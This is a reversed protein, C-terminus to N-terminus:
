GCSKYAIGKYQRAFQRMHPLCVRAEEMGQTRFCTDVTLINQTFDTNALLHPLLSDYQLRDEADQGPETWEGKKAFIPVHASTKNDHLSGDSGIVHLHLINVGNMVLYTIFGEQSRFTERADETLQGYYSFQKHGEIAVTEGHCTDYLVGSTKAKNAEPSAYKRVANSIAVIQSPRSGLFEPEFEMAIYQGQKQAYDACKAWTKGMRDIIDLENGGVIKSAAEIGDVRIINTGMEKAYDAFKKFLEFYQDMGRDTTMTMGGPHFNGAFGSVVLGLDAIKGALERTAGLDISGDPESKGGFLFPDCKPGFGHIEVADYGMKQAKQAAVDLSNGPDVWLGLSIKKELGTSVEPLVLPKSHAM